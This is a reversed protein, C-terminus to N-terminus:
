PNSSTGQGHERDGDGQTAPRRCHLRCRRVSDSSRRGRGAGKPSNPGKKVTGDATAGVGAARDAAARMCICLPVHAHTSPISVLHLTTMPPHGSEHMCARVSCRSWRQVTRVYRRRPRYSVIARVAAPTRRYTCSILCACLLPALQALRALITIYYIYIYTSLLKPKRRGQTQTGSPPRPPSPGGAAPCSPKDACTVARRTVWQVASCQM